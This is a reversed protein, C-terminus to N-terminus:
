GLGNSNHEFDPEADPWDISFRWNGLLPSFFTTLMLRVEHIIWLLQASKAVVFCFIFSPRGDMSHLPYLPLSFLYSFIPLLLHRLSGKTWNNSLEFLPLWAWVSLEKIRSACVFGLVKILMVGVNLSLPFISSSPFFLDGKESTPLMRHNVLRTLKM